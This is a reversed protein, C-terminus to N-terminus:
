YGCLTSWFIICSGSIFVVILIKDTLPLGEWSYYCNSCSGNITSYVEKKCLKCKLM